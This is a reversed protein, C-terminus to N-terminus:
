RFRRAKFSEELIMQRLMNPSVPITKTENLRPADIKQAEEMIINRLLEPTVQVYQSQSNNEQLRKARLAHAYEENIIQKLRQASIRM